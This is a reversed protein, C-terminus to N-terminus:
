DSSRAGCWLTARKEHSAGSFSNLQLTRLTVLRYFLHQTISQHTNLTYRIIFLQTILNNRLSTENLRGTVLQFGTCNGPRIVLSIM